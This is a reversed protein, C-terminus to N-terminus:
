YKRLQRLPLNIIITSTLYHQMHSLQISSPLSFSHHPSLIESILWILQAFILILKITLLQCCQTVSNFQFSGYHMRLLPYDFSWPFLLPRLPPCFHLCILSKPFRFASLFYKFFKLALDLSHVSLAHLINIKYCIEDWQKKVNKCKRKKM